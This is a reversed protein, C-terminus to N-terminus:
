IYAFFCIFYKQPFLSRRYTQRPCARPIFGGRQDYIAASRAAILSGILTGYWIVLYRDVVPAGIGQGGRTHLSMKREKVFVVENDRTM